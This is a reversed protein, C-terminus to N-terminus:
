TKKLVYIISSPEKNFFGQINSITAVMFARIYNPKGTKYKESLLSVYFADFLMPKTRILEFKHKSFIRDIAKRSFHYLHRPVDYAAWFEKYYKADYSKFNPIAIILTGNPKLLNHLKSIQTELNPLHELVHWLTIVDYLPETIEELSSSLNINKKEALDRAKPNPEVGAITWGNLQAQKLFDGTGAGVDLVSKSNTTYQNILTIKNRLNIKKVSQYLKDQLSQTSDTHSIYSDSEYYLDLNKPVPTTIYYDLEKNHILTFEEQSVSHDKVIFNKNM